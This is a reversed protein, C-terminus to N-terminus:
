VLFQGSAYANAPAVTPVQASHEWCLPTSLVGRAMEATKVSTYCSAGAKLRQCSARRPRRRTALECGLCCWVKLAPPESMWLLVGQSQGSSGSDSPRLLCARAWVSHKLVTSRVRMHYCGWLATSSYRSTDFVVLPHLAPPIPWFGVHTALRAGHVLQSRCPVLDSVAYQITTECCSSKYHVKLM